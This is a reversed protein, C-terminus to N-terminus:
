INKLEAIEQELEHLYTLNLFRKVTGDVVVDIGYISEIGHLGSKKTIYATIHNSGITLIWRHEDEQVFGLNILDNFTLDM